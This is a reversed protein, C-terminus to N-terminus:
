HGNLSMWLMQNNLQNDIEDGYGIRAGTSILDAVWFVPAIPGAFSGALLVAQITLDIIRRCESIRINRHM